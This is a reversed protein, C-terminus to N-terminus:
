RAGGRQSGTALAGYPAAQLRFMEAYTGDLIMLEEHSGTEIVRGAELVYIRDAERVSAFRHSILLVSRGEFLSRVSRFLAAEARPDLSATPEDLIVFPANRFYARALAIRQWQGLSINAGGFYESGLMHDYRNPLEGIFGDAQAQRAARAIADIDSIRAVDGIGINEAATMMYRGYEQFIVATSRRLREAEASGLPSGDWLITGENPQYLGALIKALTTKGSGNEGVLAIVEGRRMEMTVGHLVPAERSPYSFSVGNVELRSFAPLAPAETNELQAPWRKVFTSFDQMYLANEYLSASGSGLGHMRGGLLVVAGAAAGASALSLHGHMIMWVLLVLTGLTIAASAVGGISSILVRRRVLAALEKLRREYLDSMRGRLFGFLSFARVEAATDRHTLLLFLYNRRRDRETQALSFRYLARSALRTTYWVPLAGLAILALLPPAIAILAAGVGAIATIGALSGSLASTMQVPRSTAAMQARMLLNHYEPREYDLLAAGATSDAVQCVAWAEVKGSMLRSVESTITTAVRIGITVLAIAIMWPLAKGLTLRGHEGLVVALLERAVLVQAASGLGTLIDLTSVILLEVPAAKWTIRIARAVQEPARRLTRKVSPPALLEDITLSRQSAAEDTASRHAARGRRRHAAKPSAAPTAPAGPGTGAATPTSAATM